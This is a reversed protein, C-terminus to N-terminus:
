AGQSAAQAVLMMHSSLGSAQLWHQLGARAEPGSHRLATSLFRHGRIRGASNALIDVDLKGPTTVQISAFGCASALAGLATPNLFNLHHPPFVAKAEAWLVQIDLGTGSLTTLMLVDGDAMLKRLSRLFNAPTHLHEFLEFSTFLRPMVQPLEYAQLDELFRPMTHLGKARCVDALDPSPEVACIQAGPLLKRIEECFVGYGAGVDVIVAADQGGLTKRATECALEARPKFMLDRRADETRRYFDTAWFRVSASETYYRGLATATPRPNAYLTECAGCLCYRFTHKVFAEDGSGGCAPCPVEEWEERRFFTEADRSCLALYEDFLAQPRIEAEKV